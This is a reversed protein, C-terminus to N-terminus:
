DDVSMTRVSSWTSCTLPYFIRVASSLAHRLFGLREWHLPYIKISFTRLNVHRQGSGPEKNKTLSLFRSQPNRKWSWKKQNIYMKLANLLAMPIPTLCELTQARAWLSILLSRLGPISLPSNILLSSHSSLCRHTSGSDGPWTDEGPVAGMAGIAGGFHDGPGGLTCQPCLREGKDALEIRFPSQLTFVM